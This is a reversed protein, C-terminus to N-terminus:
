RSDTIPHDLGYWSSTTATAKFERKSCPLKYEFDVERKGVRSSTILRLAFGDTRDANSDSIAHEFARVICYTQPELFWGM